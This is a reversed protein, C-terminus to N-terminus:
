QGEYRECLNEAINMIHDGIREIDILLESYIVGSETEDRDNKIREIEVDRYRFCLEDIQEENKRILTFLERNDSEIIQNILHLSNFLIESLEHLEDYTEVSFSLDNGIMDEGAEAINMAHDSMGEMDVNM